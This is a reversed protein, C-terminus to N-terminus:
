EKTFEEGMEVLEETHKKAAGLDILGAERCVGAFIALVFNM